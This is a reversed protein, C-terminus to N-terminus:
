SLIDKIKPILRDIDGAGITLIVDFGNSKIWELADEKSLVKVDNNMLKALAQSTVGPIPKERAPYIDLLLTTDFQELEHAFEKMFDNTRSFLHPQFVAVINKGPYRSRVGERIAKIEEPHHAYDDIYVLDERNLIYDFRRKVGGFESIALSIRELDMKLIQATIIAVTANSMNHNGALPITFVGTKENEHYLVFSTNGHHNIPVIRYNCNEGFGFTKVKYKNRLDSIQELTFREKVGEKLLITAGDRCQSLFKYFALTFEEQSGYIDLHDADMANVVAIDPYLQLFSRDYEDAELVVWDSTGLLYNTGFESLIGGLFATIDMGSKKLVHATMSTTTTKGHTGAIAITKKDSAILGLIQARKIVPLHTTRFYVLQAQDDPVAPTYVVLDVDAPIHDLSEDYCIKMGEKSLAETLDSPTKDYGAVKIGKHIFYRALGSMGIGGIGLFFISKIDKLQIM